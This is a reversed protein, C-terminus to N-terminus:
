ANEFSRQRWKLKSSWNKNTTSQLRSEHESETTRGSWNRRSVLPASWHLWKLGIESTRELPEEYCSIPNCSQTLFHILAKLELVTLNSTLTKITDYQRMCEAGIYDWTNVPSLAAVLQFITKHVRGVVVFFIPPFFSLFFLRSKHRFRWGCNATKRESPTWFRAWQQM